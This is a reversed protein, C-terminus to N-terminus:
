RFFQPLIALLLWSYRAADDNIYAIGISLLFIVPLILSQVFRRRGDAPSLSESVLRRGRWAYLWLASFIVGALAITLAYFITATRDGYKSLVSTPFPVFAIVMMLLLNLFLLRGDYRTIVRFARHHGLWFGGIVLFSIMYGLYAPWMGLLLGLLATSDPLGNEAPLRIDLALLTIAIAFVADSFFVLRELGLEDEHISKHTDAILPLNHASPHHHSSKSM